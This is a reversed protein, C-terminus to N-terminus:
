FRFYLFPNFTETVLFAVSVLFIGMYIVCSMIRQTRGKKYSEMFACLIKWGLSSSGLICLLFLLWHTTLLFVAQRDALASAGMGFMMGIHDLASGLDPSFFFVWGVMVLVFTYIHQIVGPLRDM